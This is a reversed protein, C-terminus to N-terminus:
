VVTSTLSILTLSSINLEGKAKKGDAFALLKPQVALRKRVPVVPRSVVNSPIFLLLGGLGAALAKRM